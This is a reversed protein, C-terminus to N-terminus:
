FVSKTFGSPPSAVKSRLRAPVGIRLLKLRIWLRLLDLGVRGVRRFNFFQSVGYARHYHHVPVETLRLAFTPLVVMVLVVLGRPLTRVVILVVDLPTM